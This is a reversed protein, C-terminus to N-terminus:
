KKEKRRSIGVMGGFMSLFLLIIYYLLNRLSFEQYFAYNLLFLVVILLLGVKLGELFGYKINEKGQLYPGIFFTLFLVIGEFIVIGNGRLLSFYSLFSIFSNGLILFSSSIGINKLYKKWKMSDGLKSYTDFLFIDM